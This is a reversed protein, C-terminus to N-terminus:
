VGEPSVALSAALTTVARLFGECWELVREHARENEEAAAVQPSIRTWAGYFDDAQELLGDVKEIHRAAEEQLSPVVGRAVTEVRRRTEREADIGLVNKSFWSGLSAGTDRATTGGAVVRDMLDGFM